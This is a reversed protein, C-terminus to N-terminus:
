TNKGLPISCIEFFFFNTFPPVTMTVNLSALNLSPLFSYIISGFLTTTTYPPNPFCVLPHHSSFHYHHHHSHNNNNSKHPTHQHNRPKTQSDIM